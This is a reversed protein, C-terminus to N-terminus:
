YYLISRSALSGRQQCFTISFFLKVDNSYICKYKKRGITLLLLCDCNNTGPIPSHSKFLALLWSSNVPSTAAFCMIETITTYLSIVSRLFCFVKRHLCLLIFVGEAQESVNHFYTISWPMSCITNYKSAPETSNAKRYAEVTTYQSVHKQRM